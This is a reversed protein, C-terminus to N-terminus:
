SIPPILGAAAAKAAAEQLAHTAARDFAPTAASVFRADCIEVVLVWRGFHGRRDEWWQEIARQVVPWQSGPLRSDAIAFM